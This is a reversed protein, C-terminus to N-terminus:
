GQIAASTWCVVGVILAGAGFLAGRRRFGGDPSVGFFALVALGLCAFLLGGSLLIARAPGPAHPAELTQYLRLTNRKHEAESVPEGSMAQLRAIAQNAFELDAGHVVFVHRTELAAARVARWAYLAGSLDGAAESGRALAKLRTYAREVHPAGPAYAVAARRAHLTARAIDGEDFAQDSQRLESEGDSIARITLVALALALFLLGLAFRRLWAGAVKM